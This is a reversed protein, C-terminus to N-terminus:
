PQIAPEITNMGSEINWPCIARPFRIQADLIPGPSLTGIVQISEASEFDASDDESSRKPMVISKGSRKITNLIQGLGKGRLPGVVSVEGSPLHDLAEGLVGRTADCGTFREWDFVSLPSRVQSELTSELEECGRQYGASADEIMAIQEYRGFMETIADCRYEEPAYRQIVWGNNRVLRYLIENMDRGSSCKRHEFQLARTHRIAYGEAILKACLDYEEAYYGFTADYGGVGLFAERRLACGCGVVVEPLGGAEHSGDPLFIEGGIAGISQDVELLYDGVRCPRLNSDDDLMIVWDGRAHEAGINRAGAGINSGLAVLTLELGNGLRSPLECMVDSDNDIVVIEADGCLDKLDLKQLQALTHELEHRRNRTPIVFSILM